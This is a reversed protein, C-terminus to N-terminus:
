SLSATKLEEFAREIAQAGQHAGAGASASLILVKKFM